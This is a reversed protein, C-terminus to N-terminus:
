EKKDANEEASQEGQEAPEAPEAAPQEATEATGDPPSQEETGEEPVETGEEIRARKRGGTYGDPLYRIIEKYRLFYKYAESDNGKAEYYECRLQTLMIFNVDDEQIQPVDLLMSEPVERLLLGGNVLGQVKLVAFMVQASPKNAIAECVAYGDTKGAAYEFPVVNIVFSYFAYPLGLSFFAPVSPVTLAIVGLIIILLDFFLGAAATLVFRLRMAKAGKPYMEVSSSKFIRIKPPKVGMSLMAGVLFHAGEHVFEDIFAGLVILIIYIPILAYLQADAITVQTCFVYGGWAALAAALIAAVVTIVTPLVDRKM